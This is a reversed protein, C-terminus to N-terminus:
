AHGGGGVFGPPEPPALTKVRVTGVMEDALERAFSASEAPASLAFTYRGQATTVSYSSMHAQSAASGTVGELDYSIRVVSIGHSTLIRVDPTGGRITVGPQDRLVHNVMGNAFAHAGVRVLQYPREMRDFAVTLVARVTGPPDAHLSAIALMRVTEALGPPLDVVAKATRPCKAEDFMTAPYLVCPHALAPITVAFESGDRIEDVSPDIPGPPAPSPLPVYGDLGDGPAGRHCALATAAVTLTAALRRMRRLMLVMTAIHTELFQERRAPTRPPERRREHSMAAEVGSTEALGGPPAIAFVIPALAFLLGGGSSGQLVMSVV